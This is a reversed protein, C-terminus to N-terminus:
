RFRRPLVAKPRNYMDSHSGPTIKRTM